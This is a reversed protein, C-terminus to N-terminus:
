LSSTSGLQARLSGTSTAVAPRPPASRLNAVLAPIAALVLAAGYILTATKIGVITTLIAAAVAPVSFGLYCIVYVASFMGVREHAAALPLTVRLSGSYGSGFGCGAVITGAFYGPASGSQVALATITVGVILCCVGALMTTRDSWRRAAYVTLAAPLFLAVLALGGVIVASNGTLGRVLSPGLSLYFGGLAWTAAGVPMATAMTARARRPVRLSPILSRFTWPRAGGTQAQFALPIGLMALLAAIGLYVGQGPAPAFEVLLSSGLAGTSLGAPSAISNLLAGRGARAPNEFAMLAAGAAGMAAGTAAGQITRAAIVAGPSAACAFVLMAAIELAIASLLVVRTGLHDALSGAVLLTALIAAAYVAFICTVGVPGLAWERAYTAYLPSPAASAGIFVILVAAHLWFALRRSKM